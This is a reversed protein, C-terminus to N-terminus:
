RRKFHALEAPIVISLECLGAYVGDKFWPAQHIMKHVGNKEITYSNTGQTALLTELKARAAPPHCDLLSKGILDAGGDKAFTTRAKANMAVILGQTDCRTAAFPAEEIWDANM